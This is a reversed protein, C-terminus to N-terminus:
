IIRPSSAIILRMLMASFLASVFDFDENKEDTAMGIQLTVMIDIINGKIKCKEM